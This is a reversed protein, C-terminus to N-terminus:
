IAAKENLISVAKVVQVRHLSLGLAQVADASWALLLLLLFSSSAALLSFGLLGLVHEALQQGEGAIQSGGGGELYLLLFRCL